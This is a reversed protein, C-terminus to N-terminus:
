LSCIIDARAFHLLSSAELIAAQMLEALHKGINQVVGSIVHFPRELM